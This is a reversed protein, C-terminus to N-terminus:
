GVGADIKNGYADYVGTALLGCLFGFLSATFWQTFTELPTIAYQYGIGIVVGFLLCALTLWKGSISLKNKMVSTFGTCFLMLVAAEKVMGAVDLPDAAEAEQMQVPLAQGQGPVQGIGPSAATDLAEAGVPIIVLALLVLVIMLVSFIRKM